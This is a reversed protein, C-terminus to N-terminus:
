PHANAQAQAASPEAKSVTVALHRVERPPDIFVMLFPAAHGPELVFAKQPELKQLFELEHPTMEGIMRTSLTTGCYVASNALDHQDEDLLRVGIQVTHFPVTAHNKVVGTVVLAARGSKVTQYSSQIDSVSVQNELAAPQEFEPGILPMRRLLDASASPIGHIVGTLVLFVMAVVLFLGLFSRASHLEAREVFAREDPLPEEPEIPAMAAYQPITGRGIPAPEGRSFGPDLEGSGFRSPRAPPPEAEDDGVSWRRPSSPSDEEETLEPETADDGMEPQREDSFDFELNEGEDEAETNKAIRSPGQGPRPPASQPRSTQVTAVVPKSAEVSAKM